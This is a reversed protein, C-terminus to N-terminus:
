SARRTSDQGDRQGKPTTHRAAGRCPRREHTQLRLLLALRDRQADTLPPAQDVLAVIRPDTM